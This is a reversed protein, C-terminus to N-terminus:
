MSLIKSKWKEKFHLKPTMHLMSLSLKKGGNVYRGLGPTLGSSRLDWSVEIGGIHNKGADSYSTKWIRTKATAVVVMPPPFIETPGDGMGGGGDGKNSAESSGHSGIVTFGGHITADTTDHIPNHDAFILVQSTFEYNVLTTFVILNPKEARIMCEIFATTNLDSCSFFQGFLVDECLTTKGEAYHM